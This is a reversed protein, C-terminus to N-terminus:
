NKFVSLKSELILSILYKLYQSKYVEKHHVLEVINVPSFNKIPILEMPNGRNVSLNYHLITAELSRPCFAVGYNNACMYILDSMDNSSFVANLQINRKELEDRYTKWLAGDPYNTLFPLTLIKELDIGERFFKRIKQLPFYERFLQTSALLCTQDNTLLTREFEENKSINFGTFLDIKGNLLLKELRSNDDYLLHVKVKPYVEHFCIIMPLIADHLRYTGVGLNIKGEFEDNKAALENKVNEDIVAIKEIASLLIKGSHTLSLKPKRFFLQTDYEKELRRIHESVAQPTLYLLEATKGMHLTQATILFCRQGIRVFIVKRLVLNKKDM